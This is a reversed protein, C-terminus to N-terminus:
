FQPIESSKEFNLDKYSWFLSTRDRSRSISPISCLFTDELCILLCKTCYQPASFPIFYFILTKKLKERNKLLFLM